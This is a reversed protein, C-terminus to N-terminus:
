YGPGAGAYSDVAVVVVRIRVAEAGCLLPCVLAQVAVAMTSECALEMPRSSGM